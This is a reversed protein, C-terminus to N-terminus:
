ENPPSSFRARGVLGALADALPLDFRPLFRAYPAILPEM